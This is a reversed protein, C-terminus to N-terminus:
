PALRTIEWGPGKRLYLFRDHLRNTRGQWFEFSEATLRYGGWNAPKPVKGEPHRSRLAELRDELYRRGSIVESQESVLAGLQSGYPRRAFYALSEEESTRTVFGTVHIQRELSFWPFLLAARAERALHRGKRSGYHTFFTFGAPDVAKLLVTRSSPAGHEDVTSLVMGNPEVVGAEKAQGFWRVFQQFPDEHLEQRDLGRDAYERRLEALDMPGM